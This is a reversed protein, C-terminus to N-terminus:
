NIRFRVSIRHLDAVDDIFQKYLKDDGIDDDHNGDVGVVVKQVCWDSGNEISPKWTYIMFRTMKVNKLTEMETKYKEISDFNVGCELKIEIRQTCASLTDMINSLPFKYEGCSYINLYKLSQPLQIDNFHSAYLTLMQLQSLSANELTLLFGSMSLSQINLGILAEWLQQCTNSAEISLCTINLGCVTELLRPVGGCPSKVCLTELNTLSALSQSLSSIHDLQGLYCLSLCKINLGHIAEWLCPTYKFLNYESVKISLTELHILSALLQALASVHNVKLGTEGGSLSLSKISLGHLAQWLGPCDNNVIVDLKDLQKLSSLSRCLASVNNVELHEGSGYLCLSNINRGCLAELLDPHANVDIIIAETQTPSILVQSLQSVDNVILGRWRGRQSLTVSKINLSHLDECLDPSIDNVCVDLTELSSLSPLSKYLFVVFNSRNAIAYEVNIRLWKINLGHLAEGFGHLPKRLYLSYKSLQVYFTNNFGTRINTSIPKTSERVSGEATSTIYCCSIICQVEHDLTLLTSFLSRLWSSSCKVEWLHIYQISPLVPPLDGCRAPEAHNLVIVVPLESTVLDASDTLYIGDGELRLKKLKHCSALNFVFHSKPEGRAFSLLKELDPVSYIDIIFAQINSATASFVRHSHRMHNLNIFVHSLKPWITNQKGAEAERIGAETIKQLECPWDYYNRCRAVHYEDMLGSLANAAITNMGCLFIFVQSLDHYSDNYRTLYGVVVDDIVCTNCAIYYAALFEQITKHIFSNSSGTRNKDKRNTLIGAKLAFTKCLTFEEGSFYNSLAIDSFVISTEKECSFLLKCAAVALKDLLEINPQLYSTNSFCDVPSPNSNNFYGTKSTTKKCLSELLTTYLACLSYEKSHEEEKMTDVWTCIVLTYLMPSSSLTKLERKEVFNQFEKVTNDLDKTDDIICGLINACFIDPDSVGQIEMLIDIQSNKIRGDALKWPRTTTLVTVKDKRLGTMSPEALNCGDPAMWEDLGDRVVLCQETQIITKLLTYVGDLDDESYMQDVLQDKIMQSIDKQGRVNRLSIFFLFKFTQITMLDNFATNKNPVTLLPQYKHCWDHVLKAAFTSKGSGPEGQVYIRRNSHDHKYFMEKYFNVPEEIKRSGDKKIDIRHIKPSAYIDTIRKDLSENLISLPVFSSNDNYHEILRRRLDECSQEYNSEAHHRSHKDLAIKLQETHEDLKDECKETHEDLKVECTETHKDLKMECAGTHEDLKMECKETHEDLKVECTETHKDLKMECAGTHEDLKMECKETHEDLKMEGTETHEDLQQKCTDKHERLDNMYRQISERIEHLTKEALNDVEKLKEEVAGLLHMMEETTIKLRDNQLKALKNVAEQSAVDHALCTPDNLLNTLTTFIVQLDADTLKCQSSHRVTRGIERAKTLLCPPNNKEPAIPFSFKSDFHKCNMMFSIIGNFDTDQVSSKGTYGDPPLYAKAIQWPNQAWQQARTNKWSPSAFKHLTKIEDLVKNCVNTPCPRPQKAATDHMAKCSSNAGRKNCIGQTPCKLLNATHCGICVAPAQVSSWAANYINAHLTKAETEAFNDLGSKAIDVALWAKLWNTREKETFVDALSAM